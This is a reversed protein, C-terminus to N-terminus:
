EDEAGESPSHVASRNNNHHKLSERHFKLLIILGLLGLILSFIMSFTTYGMVWPNEMTSFESVKKMITLEDPIQGPNNLAIIFTVILYYGYGMSIYVASTWTLAKLRMNMTSGTQGILAIITFVAGAMLIINSIVSITTNQRFMRAAIFLTNILLTSFLLLHFTGKEQKARNRKKDSLSNQSNVAINGSQLEEHTMIGQVNEILPRLKKIVKKTKRTRRLTPLRTTQIPTVIHCTSTPGMIRNIIFLLFFLVALTEAWRGEAFFAAILFILVPIIFCLNLILGKISKKILFAQIDNYYFRRYDEFFYTSTVSLLHDPGTYLSNSGIIGPGKVRKYLKERKAM